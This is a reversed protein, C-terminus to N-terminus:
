QFDSYEFMMVEADPSGLVHYDEAAVPLDVNEEATPQSEGSPAPGVEPTQETAAVTTPGAEAGEPAGVTPTVMTSGCAAVLLALVTLAILISSRQTM